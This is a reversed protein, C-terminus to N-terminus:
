EHEDVLELFNEARLDGRVLALRQQVEDDVEVSRSAVSFAAYIECQGHPALFQMPARLMATKGVDDDSAAVLQLKEIRGVGLVPRIQPERDDLGRAVDKHIPAKPTEEFSLTAVGGLVAPVLVRWKRGAHRVQEECGGGPQGLLELVPRVLQRKQLVGELRGPMGRYLPPGM